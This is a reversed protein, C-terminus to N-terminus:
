AKSLRELEALGDACYGARGFGFSTLLTAKQLEELLVDKVDEFSDELRYRDIEEYAYKPNGGSVFADLNCYWGDVPAAANRSELLAKVWPGPCRLVDIDFLKVTAVNAEGDNWFEVADVVTVDDGDDRDGGDVPKLDIFCGFRRYEHRGHHAWDPMGLVTLMEDARMGFRVIGVGDIEMGSRVTIAIEM